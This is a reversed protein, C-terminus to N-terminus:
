HALRHKKRSHLWKNGVFALISSGAGVVAGAAVDSPYHMGLHLRSYGVATAWTYAATTIYWRPHQLAISTATNFAFSTHGSPFSPDTDIQYPQINSYTEYPRKRNIAYKLAYTIFANGAVAEFTVLGRRLLLSDHRAYGAFMEGAPVLIAIPYVSQSTAKMFGDLSTNRGVNIQRLLGIDSTRASTAVFIGLCCM